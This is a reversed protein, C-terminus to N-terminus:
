KVGIQRLRKLARAHQSLQALARARDRVFECSIKSGRQFLRDNLSLFDNRQAICRLIRLELNTRDFPNALDYPRGHAPQYVSLIEEDSEGPCDLTERCDIGREILSGCGPCDVLASESEESDHPNACPHIQNSEAGGRPPRAPSELRVDFGVAAARGREPNSSARRPESTASGRGTAARQEPPWTQLEYNVNGPNGRLNPKPDDRPIENVILSNLGGISRVTLHHVPNHEGKGTTALSSGSNCSSVPRRSSRCGPATSHSVM